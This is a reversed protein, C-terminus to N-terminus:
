RHISEDGGCRPMGMIVDYVGLHSRRDVPPDSSKDLENFPFTKAKLRGAIMRRQWWPMVVCMVIPPPDSPEGPAPAATHHTPNYEPLPTAWDKAAYPASLINSGPYKVAAQM